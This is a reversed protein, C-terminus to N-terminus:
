KSRQKRARREAKFQRLMIKKAQRTGREVQRFLTRAVEESGNIGLGLDLTAEDRGNDITVLLYPHYGLIPQKLTITPGYGEVEPATETDFQDNM